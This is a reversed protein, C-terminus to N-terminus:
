WPFAGVEDLALLLEGVMRGQDLLARPTAIAALARRGRDRFAADGTLRWLAGNLRAALVNHALPRDRRAFVGAAAADPTGAFYAGTEPDALDREMAAAIRLAADKYAAEGSVEALRALGHGLAAHDALFRVGRQGGGRTPRRVAGDPLVHTRLLLDAAQRARALVAADRTAEHLACMAAIALGNEHGYVNDDIRPIGVARRGADDLGYYV